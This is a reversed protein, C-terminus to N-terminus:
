NSQNEDECTVVIAKGGRDVVQKVFYVSFARSGALYGILVAIRILASKM